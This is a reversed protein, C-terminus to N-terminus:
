TLSEAQGLLECCFLKTSDISTHPAFVNFIKHGDKRDM